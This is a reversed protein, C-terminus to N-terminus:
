IEMCYYFYTSVINTMNHKICFCILTKNFNQTQSLIVASVLQASVLTFCAAHHWM